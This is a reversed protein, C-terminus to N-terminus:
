AETTKARKAPKWAVQPADAWLSEIDYFGRQDEVFLHVIVSGLDQLIWKAEDAGERGLERLGHEKASRAIEEAIARSQRDGRTSAVLFFDTIVTLKRVDLLVVNEAKMEDCIRACRVALQRSTM